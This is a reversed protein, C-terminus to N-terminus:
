VMQNPVNPRLKNTKKTITSMSFLQIKTFIESITKNKLFFVRLIQLISIKKTSKHCMFFNHMYQLAQARLAHLTRRAEQMFPFCM